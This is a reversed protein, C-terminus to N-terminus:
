RRRARRTRWAFRGAMLLGTGLTMALLGPEPASSWDPPPPVVAPPLQEMYGGGILEQKSILAVPYVLEGFDYWEAKYGAGALTIDSVENVSAIGAAAVPRGFQDLGDFALCIGSANYLGGLNTTGPSSCPTLMAITYTGAALGAFAYSGDVNTFVDTTAGTAVNTLAVEAQYLAWDTLDPKGNANADYYVYGSILGTNNADQALSATSITGALSPSASVFTVAALFCIWRVRPACAWVAWLYPEVFAAEM